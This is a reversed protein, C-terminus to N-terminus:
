SSCLGLDPNEESGDGDGVPFINSAKVAEVPPPPFTAEESSNDDIDEHDVLFFLLNYGCKM